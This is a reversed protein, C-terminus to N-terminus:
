GVEKKLSGDLGTHIPSPSINVIRHRSAWRHRILLAVTGIGLILGGWMGVGSQKMPFALVLGAPIGICCYGFANLLMPVKTDQLGRLMGSFLTQASDVLMFISGLLLFSRATEVVAANAPSEPDVYISIFLDPLFLTGLAIFGSCALGLILGSKGARSIAEHDESGYANGVRITIGQGIGAPVMYATIVVQIAIAYAALATEGLAGMTLMTVNFILLEFGQTVAAPFGITWVKQFTPWDIRWWHKALRYVHLRPISVVAILVVAFMTLHASFVAIGVGRAHLAPIGFKGYMAIWAVLANVSIGAIAAYISWIALGSNALLGRLVCFLLYPLLGWLLYRMIESALKAVEQPQGVWHYFSEINWLGVWMPVCIILSSLIGQQVITRVEDTANGSKGMARAIMPLTAMVLGSSFFVFASYSSFALIGAALSSPSLRGLFMLAITNIGTMVLNAVILPWSLRILDRYELSLGFECRAHVLKRNQM